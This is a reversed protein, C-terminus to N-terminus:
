TFDVISFVYDLSAQDVAGGSPNHILVYVTDAGSCICGGVMMNTAFASPLTCTIADGPNAGTVTIPGEQRFAGAALSAFDRTVTVKRIGKRATSGSESFLESYRVTTRLGNPASGATPLGTSSVGTIYPWDILTDQAAAAISFATGSSPTNEIRSGYYRTSLSAATNSNRHATTFVEIALGFYSNCSNDNDTTGNTCDNVRGGFIKNENGLTGNTYGDTVTTIDVGHFENYFAGLSGTGGNRVATAVNQILTGFVKAMTTSLFDLGIGGANARSTNDLTGGWITINYRRQTTGNRGRLLPATLNGKIIAQRSEFVITTSDDLELTSTIKATGNPIFVRHDCLLANQLATTDDTVGNLVAGYRRVDGPPYAYDTPTVGAAIEGATRLLSNLTTGILSSTLATAGISSAPEIDGNSNCALFKSARIAKAPLEMLANPEYVPVRISRSLAANVQRIMMALDDLDDELVAAPILAYDAFSTGRALPMDGYITIIAGNGPAVLFACTGGGTTEAGTLTYDTNLTKLAGDVRVVIDSNQRFEFPVSFVTQSGNGTYQSFPDVDSVTLAM